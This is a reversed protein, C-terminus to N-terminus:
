GTGPGQELQNFHLAITALKADVLVLEAISQAPLGTM